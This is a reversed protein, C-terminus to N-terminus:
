PCVSADAVEPRVSPLVSLDIPTHTFPDFGLKSKQCKEEHICESLLLMHGRFGPHGM